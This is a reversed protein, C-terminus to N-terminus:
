PNEELNVPEWQSKFIRAFGVATDGNVIPFNAYFCYDYSLISISQTLDSCETRVDQGRALYKGTRGEWETLLYM